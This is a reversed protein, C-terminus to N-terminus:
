ELLFQEVLDKTRVKTMGSMCGLVAGSTGTGGSWSMPVLDKCEADRFAVWARQSARLKDQWSKADYPKEGESKTIKALVKEYVANLAKDAAELEKDACFNLEATSTANNCDVPTGADGAYIPGTVLLNLAIATAFLLRCM